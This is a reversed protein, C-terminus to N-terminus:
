HCFQVLCSPQACLVVSVRSVCDLRERWKESSWAEVRSKSQRINNMMECNTLRENWKKMSGIIHYFVTLSVGTVFISLRPDYDWWISLISSIIDWWLGNGYRRPARMPLNILFSIDLHLLLLCDWQIRIYMHGGARIPQPLCVTLNIM